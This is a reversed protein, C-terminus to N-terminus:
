EKKQMRKLTAQVEATLWDNTRAAAVGALIKRAEDSAILEFIALVAQLRKQDQTLPPVAMKELLEQARQRVEASKTQELARQLQPLADRGLKGLAASAAERESFSDDDLRAILAAIKKDDPAPLAATDRLRPALFPVAQAPAGALAEVAACAPPGDAALERWLRDLEAPTFAQPPPNPQLPEAVTMAVCLPASKTMASLFEISVVTADPRPNDWTAAFLRISNGNNKVKANSGQWVEKAATPTDGPRKWFAFVDQRNVVQISHTTGDQYRLIFSAIPIPGEEIAWGAAHLVSLATFKRGVKLEVKPPMRMMITSGLQVVGDGVEFPIGLLVHKGGALGALDNGAQNHLGDARKQNAVPQL